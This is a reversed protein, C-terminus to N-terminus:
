FDRKSGGCLEHEVRKTHCELVYANVATQLTRAIDPSRAVLVHTSLLIFNSPIVTDVLM